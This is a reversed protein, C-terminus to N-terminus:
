ESQQSLSTEGVAPKRWPWKGMMEFEIAFSLFTRILIIIALIAVSSFTLEIAVTKIIDAAVLFELGLLIGHALQLRYAQFQNKALRRTALLYIHYGTAYIAFILIVAIGLLELFAISWQAVDVTFAMIAETLMQNEEM